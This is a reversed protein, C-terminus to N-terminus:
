YVRATFTRDNISVCDRGNNLSPAYSVFAVYYTQTGPSPNEVVFTQTYHGRFGATVALSIFGDILDKPVPGLQWDVADTELGSGSDRLLMSKFGDGGASQTGNGDFALLAKYEFEIRTAGAPVDITLGVDDRCHRNAATPATSNSYNPVADNGAPGTVSSNGLTKVFVSDILAGSAPNWATGDWRVDIGLAIDYVKNGAAPTYITYSDAVECIAVKGEHGAWTGFAGSAIIYADAVSGTVTADYANLGALTHTETSWNKAETVLAVDTVDDFTGTRQINQASTSLTFGSGAQSWVGGSKYWLGMASAGSAASGLVGRVEICILDTTAALTLRAVIRDAFAASSLDGLASTAATTDDDDDNINAATGGLAMAPTAGTQRSGPPAYTTQNSVRVPGLGLAIISSLPITNDQYAGAGVGAVWGDDGEWHVYSAAPYDGYATKVFIPPGYDPDVEVWGRSTHVIIDNADGVIGTIDIWAQGYASPTPEVSFGVAEVAKVKIDGLLKYRKGGILVLTTIGDHATTTDASDYKFTGDGYVYAPRVSGAVADVPDVQLIGAVVSADDAIFGVLGTILEALMEEEDPGAPDDRFADILEQVGM